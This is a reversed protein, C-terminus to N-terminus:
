VMQSHRRGYNKEKYIRALAANATIYQGDATTQFIGSVSNEFIGRYFSAQQHAEREVAILRTMDQVTGILREARGRASLAASCRGYLM